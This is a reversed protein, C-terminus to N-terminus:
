RSPSRLQRNFESEEAIRGLSREVGEVQQEVSALRRELLANAQRLEEIERRRPAAEFFPRLAYRVTVGTIVTLIAMGVMLQIVYDFM